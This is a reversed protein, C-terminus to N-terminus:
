YISYYDNINSEIATRNASQDSDYIIIEHVPRDYEGFNDVGFIFGQGFGLNLSIPNSASAVGNRYANVSRPDVGGEAIISIIQQTTDSPFYHPSYTNTRYTIATAEWGLYLVIDLVINNSVNSSPLGAMFISHYNIIASNNLIDDVGDPSVVPKGNELIVSGGSVIQPQTAATAQTADNGNGSQDYWTTVYGDNLAGVWAELTGDAVEAATFNSEADDSSRRVRVVNTTSASLKRLSYAAAAGSFTDLLFNNGLLPVNFGTDLGHGLGLRM